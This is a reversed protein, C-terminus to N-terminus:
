SFAVVSSADRLRPSSRNRATETTLRSLKEKTPSNEPTLPDLRALTSIAARRRSVARRSATSACMASESNTIASRNSLSSADANISRTRPVM